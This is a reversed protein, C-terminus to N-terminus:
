RERGRRRLYREFEAAIAEGSAEPRMTSDNLRELGRVHEALQPNRAVLEDAGLEWAQSEEELVPIDIDIGTLREVRRALALEAKPSPSDALYDPVGVWLSLADIGAHAFAVALLGLIGVPGEYSNPEVMEDLRVAVRPNESNAVIPLPRSHAVEAHLSGLVVVADGPETQATILSVFERWKLGPEHGHILTVATGAVWGRHVQVGPWAITARGSGDRILEPESFRFEYFGDTDLIESDTIAWADVLDKVLSSAAESADADQGEFAILVLSSTGAPLFRM